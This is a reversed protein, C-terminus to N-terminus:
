HDQEPLNDRDREQVHVNVFPARVHVGRDTRVSVLGDDGHPYVVQRQHACACGNLGLFMLAAHTKWRRKSREVTSSERTQEEHLPSLGRAFRRARSV